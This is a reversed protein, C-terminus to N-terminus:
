VNMDFQIRIKAFGANAAIYAEIRERAAILNEANENRIYIAERYEDRIKGIRMPAPGVAMLRGGPDIRDIFSRIHRMGTDLLAGDKSFGFIGAMYGCPPYSMLSRFAMEERYFADQDQAAGYVIAYHDPQYTQIVARGRKEGRGARGVAQAILSYTRWASRYDSEGLSMDAMLMGVLTVNPFDHGKVIMQTGIMISARGESFEKLIRSHGFKGKTTDSDMRVIGVGPFEEELVEEVRETGISLGEVSSSGCVPCSTVDQREYGCYHCILKGDRHRTLSVDCHPCKVTNGCSRCIIFGSYGRRNLFLMVQEGASISRSMEERLTDSIISLNGKELEERMDVIETEPLGGGGFRGPLVVELYKGESARMCSEMSPTASGLVVHAGEISARKEATERAHYRPVSESHYTEEHEEDIIILGLHSFPTFLASRPGVMVSIEGNRAARMQDYREGKSLRSHLFSVRSGFRRVFRAVTQRTLAIEPILVIAQRGEALVREILESYVVTKGSGTVGKILITRDSGEWESTIDMVAQRQAETLTEQAADDEDMEPMLSERRSSVSIIGAVSLDKIVSSSIGAREALEGTDMDGEELLIELARKRAKWNKKECEGLYEEARAPDPVSVTRIEKVGTKKRLPVVTKLASIVSSGYYRSMWVALQVLQSEVTESGTSVSIIDKIRSPDIDTENKIDVVYGDIRRPGFPVTVCSGRVISDRVQDGIRYTFPHDLEEASIDVIVEAYLGSM